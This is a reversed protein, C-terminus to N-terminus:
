YKIRGLAVVTGFLGLLLGIIPMVGFMNVPFSLYKLLPFEEALRVLVYYFTYSEVVGFIGGVFGIIGGEILFPARIFGATAGLLKYTEIEENRRYFLIKVTTYIVFIIAFFILVSFFIGVARMATRFSQVFDLIQRGYDIDDVYPKSKLRNILAEVKEMSFRDKKIKVEFSPSLPNENLGELIYEAGRLNHRLERYAKEKSIYVVSKVLSDRKLLAESHKIENGPLGDKLYVMITFKGPLRKAILEVNYLTFVTISLILLAFGITIVSLLNIWKERM